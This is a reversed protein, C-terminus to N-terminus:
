IIPCSGGSCCSGGSGCCCSSCRSGGRRRCCRGCSGRRRLQGWQAHNLGSYTTTSPLERQSREARPVGDDVAEVGVVHRAGQAVLVDVQHHLALVLVAARLKDVGPPGPLPRDSQASTLSPVYQDADNYVKLICLAICRILTRWTSTSTLDLSNSAGARKNWLSGPMWLGLARSWHSDLRSM